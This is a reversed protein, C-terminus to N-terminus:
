LMVYCLNAPTVTWETLQSMVAPALLLDHHITFQLVNNVCLTCLSGFLSPFHQIRNDQAQAFALSSYLSIFNITENFIHALVTQGYLTFLSLLSFISGLASHLRRNLTAPPTAAAAAAAAICESDETKSTTSVTRTRLQKKKM